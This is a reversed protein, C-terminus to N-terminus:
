RYRRRRSSITVQRFRVKGDGRGSYSFPSHSLGYSNRAINIVIGAAAMNVLLASGGYSIFPLPLGKTPMMGTSVAFNILAQSVIMITLGSALYYGFSDDTQRAVKFGKIFLWLFLGLVTLVGLLGLEEGILAFIFDTHAEPLFFLKQKSDGIGVGTFGGRGFALFSQVLQFGSDRPDQWPDLFAIIRRMRYPASLVLVCAVPVSMLVIGLIYRWPIGGIFLLALTIIGLSIVAGFDPQFIIIGQFVAVISVPIIVGRRMDKMKHLNRSMYDALFIVVVLKVLESPQFTSVWINIWRKVESKPGASVGIGPIFVLILLLASFLLLPVVAVRLNRYHIKALFIMASTGILITLLHKVLYHFSSGYEKSSIFVSSSYVMLLGIGVLILVPIIIGRTNKTIM